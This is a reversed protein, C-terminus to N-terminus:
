LSISMYLTYLPSPLSQTKGVLFRYVLVHKRPIIALLTLETYDGLIASTRISSFRAECFPGVCNRVHKAEDSGNITMTYM